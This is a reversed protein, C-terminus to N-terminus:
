LMRKLKRHKQPLPERHLGPQLNLLLHQIHLKLFSSKFVLRQFSQIEFYLLHSFFFFHQMPLFFFYYFASVQIFFMDNLSFVLSEFYDMFSVMHFCCCFPSTDVTPKHFDVIPFTNYLFKWLLLLSLFKFMGSSFMFDLHKIQFILLWRKAELQSFTLNEKTMNYIDM